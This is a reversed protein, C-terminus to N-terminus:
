KHKQNRHFKSNQHGKYAQLTAFTKGCCAYTDAAPKVVNLTHAQGLLQLVSVRLWRADRTLQRLLEAEEAPTVDPQGLRATATAARQTRYQAETM